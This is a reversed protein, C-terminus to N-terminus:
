PRKWKRPDVLDLPYGGPRDSTKLCGACAPTGNLTMRGIAPMPIDDEAHPALVACSAPRRNDNVYRDLLLTLEPVYSKLFDKKTQSTDAYARIIPDDTM